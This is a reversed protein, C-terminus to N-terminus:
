SAKGLTCAVLWDREEWGRRSIFTSIFTSIFRSLSNATSPHIRAAERSRYDNSGRINLASANQKNARGKQGGGRRLNTAPSRSPPTSM